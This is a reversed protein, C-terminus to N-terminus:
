PIDIIRGSSTLRATKRDEHMCIVHKELQLVSAAMTTIKFFLDNLILDHDITMRIRISGEYNLNKYILLSMIKVRSCNTVHRPCNKILKGQTPLVSHWEKDGLQSRKFM